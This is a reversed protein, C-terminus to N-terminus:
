NPLHTFPAASEGGEGHPLFLVTTEFTGDGTESCGVVIGERKIRRCRCGARRWEFCVILGSMLELECPSNFVAGHSEFRLCGCSQLIGDRQLRVEPYESDTIPSLNRM